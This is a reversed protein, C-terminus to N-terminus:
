DHGIELDGIKVLVVTGEMGHLADVEVHRRALEGHEDPRRAAALGRQQARNGPQLIRACALDLDAALVHGPRPRAVAVDGHHELVVREVGIEVHLVIDGEAQPRPLEGLRFDLLAHRAGGLHEPM